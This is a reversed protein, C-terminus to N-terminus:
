INVGTIISTIIYAISMSLIWLSTQSVRYKQPNEESSALWAQVFYYGHRFVNLSSMILVVLLIKNLIDILM